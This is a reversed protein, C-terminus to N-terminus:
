MVVHTHGTAFEKTTPPLLNRKHQGLPPSWSRIPAFSFIYELGCTELQRVVGRRSFLHRESSIRACEPGGISARGDVGGVPSRRVLVEKSLSKVNVGSSCVGGKSFQWRISRKFVGFCRFNGGPPVAELQTRPQTRYQLIHTNYSKTEM